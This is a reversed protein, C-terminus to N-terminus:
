VFEFVPVSVIITKFNGKETLKVYFFILVMKVIKQRM